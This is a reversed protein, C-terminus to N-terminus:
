KEIIDDLFSFEPDKQISEALRTAFANQDLSLEDQLYHNPMVSDFRWGFTTTIQDRNLGFKHAILCGLRRFTNRKPIIECGEDIAASRFNNWTTDGNVQGLCPRVKSGAKHGKCRFSEWTDVIDTTFKVKKHICPFVFGFKQRGTIIWFIIILRIPCLDSFDQVLSVGENRKGKANAKSGPLAFKFKIRDKARRIILSEWRIRSIDIWRRGTVSCLLAHIASIKNKFIQANNLPRGKRSRTQYFLNRITQRLKVPDVAPAHEVLANSKLRYSMFIDFSNNKVSTKLTMSAKTVKLVENLLKQLFSTSLIAQAKFNHYEYLLKTCNFINEQTIRRKSFYRKICKENKSMPLRFFKIFENLRSHNSLFFKTKEFTVLNSGHSVMITEVLNALDQKKVTSSKRKVNEPPNVKKPKKAEVRKSVKKTEKKPKKSEKVVKTGDKPGREKKVKKAPLKSEAQNPRAKVNTTYLCVDEYKQKPLAGLQKHKDMGSLLKRNELMKARIERDFPEKLQFMDANRDMLNFFQEQHVKSLCMSVDLLGLKRSYHPDGIKSVLNRHIEDVFAKLGLQDDPLAEFLRRVLVTANQLFFDKLLNTM